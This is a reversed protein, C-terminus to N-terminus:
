SPIAFAVLSDGFRKGAGAHGGAYIVVYQKGKWRYTMPTAHGPAPLEAKWLEKGTEVDFARLFSDTTSAVFVLGGSTTIPGGIVRTGFPLSLGFMEAETTGLTTRWALRGKSLDIAALVGWPPPTCPLGIPSVLPARVAAYPTGTQPELEAGTDRQKLQAAANPPGLRVIEGLNSINVVLLNRSPDFAAGSWSAGAGTSPFVATGQLTPAAFPGGTWLAELKRRCLMRDFWTLGFANRHDVRGPLAAPLFSPVPQTPSLVEGPVARVPVEQEEVPLLPRGSDRDLVFVHGAKSVQIVADKTGRETEVSTLIPQTPLDYDWVDHHVIQYSWVVRGTGVDVAIVSNSWANDGPRQGGYHAPSTGGTALFVLGREADVSMPAWTNAGGEVPPFQGLWTGASAMDQSRPIPDFDWLPDGTRADFARVTGPPADVRQSEAIASGVIVVNGAVAPPSTIQYEGPWELPKGPDINVTGLRGFGKCALGTERDVAVLRGDNTGMFIRHACPGTEGTGSWSAVGRCTFHHAPRQDLDIAPDHRWLEVGSEPDLAVVENFPTCFVLKEGVLIPTAEAGSDAVLDPRSQLDGTEYSWVRRLQSVTAPTLGPADAYKMGGADGGAHAWGPVPEVERVPKALGAIDLPSAARYYVLASGGLISVCASVFALLILLLSLRLLGTM